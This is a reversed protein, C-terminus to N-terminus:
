AAAADGVPGVMYGQWRHNLTILSVVEWRRHQRAQRGETGLPHPTGAVGANVICVISDPWLQWHHTEAEGHGTM